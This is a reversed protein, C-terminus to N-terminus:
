FNRKTINSIDNCTHPTPSKSVFWVVVIIVFMIGLVVGFLFFLKPNVYEILIDKVNKATTLQNLKLKEYDTQDAIYPNNYYRKTEKVDIVGNENLDDISNNSVIIPMNDYRNHVTNIANNNIPTPKNTFNPNTFLEEDM